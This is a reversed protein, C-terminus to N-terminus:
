LQEELERIRARITSLRTELLAKEVLLNNRKAYLADIEATLAKIEATTTKNQPPDAIPAECGTLFLIILLLVTALGSALNTARNPRPCREKFLKSRSAADGSRGKHKAAQKMNLM